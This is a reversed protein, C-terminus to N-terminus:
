VAGAAYGKKIFPDEKYVATIFIIPIDACGPLAKIRKAAEFGDMNPMQIDMLIVDIDQRKQLVALAEVGSEANIMEYEDALVAELAILNAPKDDVALVKPKPSVRKTLM